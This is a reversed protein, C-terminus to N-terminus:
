RAPMVVIWGGAGTCFAMIAFLSLSNGATVANPFHTVFRTCSSRGLVEAPTFMFLWVVVSAAGAM